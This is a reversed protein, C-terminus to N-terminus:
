KKKLEAVELKLPEMGEKFRGIKEREERTGGFGRCGRVMGDLVAVEGYLDWHAGWVAENLKGDRGGGYKEYRGVCGEM